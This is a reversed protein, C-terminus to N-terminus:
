HIYYRNSFEEVPVSFNREYMEQITGDKKMSEIAKDIEAKLPDGTRLACGEMFKDPNGAVVKINPYEAKRIVFAEMSDTLVDIRGSELDLCNPKRIKMSSHKLHDM